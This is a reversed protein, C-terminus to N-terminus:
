YQEVRFAATSIVLYAAKGKYTTTTDLWGTMFAPLLTVPYIVQLYQYKGQSGLTFQGSGPKLPPLALGSMDNRAYARYGPNGADVVYLNVILDGCSMAAPLYGCLERTFSALSVPNTQQKQATGVLVQRSAQETAYDLKQGFYLIQAVIMTGVLAAIFMMGVLAFEVATSGKEDRILGLMHRM